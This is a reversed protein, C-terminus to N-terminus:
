LKGKMVEEHLIEDSGVLWSLEATKDEIVEYIAVSSETEKRYTSLAKVLFGMFRKKDDNTKLVIVNDLSSEDSHFVRICNQNENM